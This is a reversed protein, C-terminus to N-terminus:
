RGHYKLYRKDIAERFLMADDLRFRVQLLNAGTDNYMLIYTGYYRLQGFIVEHGYEKMRPMHEIHLISKEQNNVISLFTGERCSQFPAGEFQGNYDFHIIGPKTGNFFYSEKKLSQSNDHFYYDYVQRDIKMYMLWRFLSEPDSEDYHVATGFLSYYTKSSIDNYWQGVYQGNIGKNELDEQSYVDDDYVFQETGNDDMHKYWDMGDPDVLNVPDNACYAYPSVDYNKESMPDPVLWRSLTPSYQRAGFDTYPLSLLSSSSGPSNTIGAQEEQGTGSSSRSEMKMGDALYLYKM